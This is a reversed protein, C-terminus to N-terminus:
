TPRSSTRSRGNSASTSIEGGAARVTRAWSRSSIPKPSRGAIRVGRKQAEEGLRDIRELRIEMPKECIVNVGSQIGLLAPEFHEGSPTCVHIVDLQERKLLEAEETYVPIGTLNHAALAAQAREPKKDCVAVLKVNPVHGTGVLRVHWEGVTGAGVVASRWERSM